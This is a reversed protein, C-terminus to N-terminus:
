EEMKPGHKMLQRLQYSLTDKGSINDIMRNLLDEITPSTVSMKDLLRRGEAIEDDTLPGKRDKFEPVYRKITAELKDKKMEGTAKFNYSSQEGLKKLDKKSMVKAEQKGSPLVFRKILDKKGTVPNYDGAVILDDMGIASYTWFDPDAKALEDKFRSQSWDTVEEWGGVPADYLSDIKDAIEKANVGHKIMGNIWHMIQTNDMLGFKDIMRDVKYLLKSDELLEGREDVKAGSAIDINKITEEFNSGMRIETFKKDEGLDYTYHSPNMTINKSRDVLSKNVIRGTRPDRMEKIGVPSDITEFTSYVEEPKLGAAVATQLAPSKIDYATPTGSQTPMATVPAPQISPAAQSGVTTTPAITTAPATVGSATAPVGYGLAAMKQSFSSPKGTTTKGYLRDYIGPITAGWANIPTARVQAAMVPSLKEIQSAFDERRAEYDIIAADKDLQTEFDKQKEWDFKEQTLQRQKEQGSLMGEYYSKLTDAKQRELDAERKEKALDRKYQGYEGIGSLIGGLGSGQLMGILRARDTAM